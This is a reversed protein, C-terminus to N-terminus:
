CAGFSIILVTESQESFTNLRVNCSNLKHYSLISGIHGIYAANLFHSCKIGYDQRTIGDM